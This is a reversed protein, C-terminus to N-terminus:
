KVLGLAEVVQSLNELALRTERPWEEPYRAQAPNLRDIVLLRPVFSRGPSLANRKHRFLHSWSTLWM